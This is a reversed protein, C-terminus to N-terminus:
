SLIWPTPCDLNEKKEPLKKSNERDENQRYPNHLRNLANKRGWSTNIIEECVTIFESIDTVNTTSTKIVAHLEEPLRMLMHNIQDENTSGPYVAQIRRHLTLLFELTDKNAYSFKDKEM